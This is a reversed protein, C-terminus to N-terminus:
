SLDTAIPTAHKLLGTTGSFGQLSRIGILPLGGTVLYVM